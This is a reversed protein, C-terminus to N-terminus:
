FSHKKLWGAIKKVSYKKSEVNLLFAVIEDYNAKLDKNNKKLFTLLCLLATRKNADIFPHNLVLSHLLAAAKLVISFYLDKGGFSAKPRELSAHLLGFDNIGEKGGSAIIIQDHLYLAEELSLYKIM